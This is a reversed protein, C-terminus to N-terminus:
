RDSELGRSADADSSHAAEDRDLTWAAIIGSITDPGKVHFPVGHHNYVTLSDYRGGRIDSTYLEIRVSGGDISPLQGDRHHDFTTCRGFHEIEGLLRAVRAEAVTRFRGLDFVLGHIEIRARFKNGHPYIGPFGSSSRYHLPKNHSNDSKSVDRLNSWRNDDRVRNVHDIEHQPWEGTMYFWALHHELYRKYDLGIHRYGAGHRGGARDGVDHLASSLKWSFLGTEPSYDLCEKLRELTLVTAKIDKGKRNLEEINSIRLDTPDANVYRVRRPWKGHIYFWALPGGSFSHGDVAIMVNGLETVRGAGVAGYKRHGSWSWTRGPAKRTFAGTQPDYDFLEKLRERTPRGQKKRM